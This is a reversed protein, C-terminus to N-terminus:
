RRLVPNGTGEAVLRRLEAVTLARGCRRRFAQLYAEAGDRASPAIRELALLYEELPVDSRYDIAPVPTVDPAATAGTASTAFLSASVAAALVPRM